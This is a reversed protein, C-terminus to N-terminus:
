KRSRLTGSGYGSAHLISDEPVHRRTTQCVNASTVFSHAAEM